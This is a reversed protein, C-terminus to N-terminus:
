FHLQREERYCFVAKDQIGLKKTDAREDLIAAIKVLLEKHTAKRPAAASSSTNKNAERDARQRRMHDERSLCEKGRMHLETTPPHRLAQSFPAVSSTDKDDNVKPRKPTSQHKAKAKGESRPAQSRQSSRSSGSSSSSTSREEERGDLHFRLKELWKSYYFSIPIFHRNHIGARRQQLVRNDDTSRYPGKPPFMPSSKPLNESAHFFCGELSNIANEPGPISYSSMLRNTDMVDGLAAQVDGHLERVQQVTLGSLYAQVPNRSSSATTGRDGQARYKCTDAIIVEVYANAKTIVNRQHHAITQRHFVEESGKSGHGLSKSSRRIEEEVDKKNRFSSLSAYLVPDDKIDQEQLGKGNVNNPTRAPSPVKKEQGPAPQDWRNSRNRSKKPPPIFAPSLTTEMAPPEKEARRLIRLTTPALRAPPPSPTSRRKRKLTEVEKVLHVRSQELVLKDQELFKIREELDAIVQSAERNVERAANLQDVVRNRSAELQEHLVLHAYHEVQLEKLQTVVGLDKADLKLSPVVHTSLVMKKLKDAQEKLGQALSSTGQLQQQLAVVHNDVTERYVRNAEAIHAQSAAMTQEHKKLIEDKRDKLLRASNTM